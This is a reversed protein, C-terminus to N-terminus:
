TNILNLFKKSHGLENINRQVANAFMDTLTYSNQLEEMIERCEETHGVWWASVGKQFLLAYHGPYEVNDIPKQALNCLELGLCAYTYSDQWEALVEYLRSLLFYAEPRHPLLVIAKKLLTKETDDRCKQREFCLASHLLATYQQLSDTSREACRLYFGMASATQGLARYEEALAFNIGPDNPNHVYPLLNILM